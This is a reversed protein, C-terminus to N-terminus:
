SVNTQANITVIPGGGTNTITIQDSTAPCPPNSITWEFVSIGVGLGSIGSTASSPTTITATGSVLTWLGTGFSPVNGALIASSSCISQDPGATAPAGGGTNTITVQDSSPTCPSNSITWQFVNAGVGLGTVGSTESAPTTIIGTGSVLTWIGTGVTPVNGALTASNSCMSQDPGATAITTAAAPQTITVTTTGPCSSNDLVNLTYTGAPLGTFSQTGAINSFTAVTTGGGNVLTYDWPTAGGSTSADFSGTSLGFCTVNVVNSSAVTLAPCTNSCAPLSALSNIVLTNSAADTVKIPYTGPPTITVGTAFTSTTTGPVGACFGPICSGGFCGSCDTFTSDKTWTFPGNGNTVTINGNTEQ